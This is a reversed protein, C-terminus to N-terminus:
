ADRPWKKLLDEKEDNHTHHLTNWCPRKWSNLLDIKIVLVCTRFSVELPYRFDELFNGNSLYDNISNRKSVNSLWKMFKSKIWCCVKHNKHREEGKNNIIKSLNNKYKRAM